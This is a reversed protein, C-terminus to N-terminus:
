DIEIVMGDGWSIETFPDKAHEEKAEKIRKKLQEKGILQEAEKKTIKQAGWKTYIKM